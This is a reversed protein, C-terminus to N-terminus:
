YESETFTKVEEKVIADLKFLQCDKEDKKDIRIIHYKERHKDTAVIM